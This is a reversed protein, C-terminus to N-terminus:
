FFVKLQKFVALRKIEGPTVDDDHKCDIFNTEYGKCDVHDYAFPTQVLGFHSNSFINSVGSFGLEKCM